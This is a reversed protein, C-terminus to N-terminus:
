YEFESAGVFERLISIGPVIDIKLPLFFTLLVRLRSVTDELSPQKGVKELLKLCSETLVPLEYLLASNFMMDAEEQFPFIYQEEGRRVSPWRNLTEEASYGRYKYDRIMRRLLRNDSTSVRHTSDINLQTIASIYIRQLQDKGLAEALVPNLGHIGELIVFDDRGLQLTQNRDEGIGAEFNFKRVPIEKGRLLSNMREALLKINVAQINEFDQHGNKDLPIDKRDHFYDDMSIQRARFGIVRLQIALRKAFTTKGSSSPGAITIIRKDPFNNVLVDAIDSIKKEHLGEAVWLLERIEGSHITENLDHITRVGLIDGWREHEEMVSFLKPQNRFSGVTGPNLLTPFRLLFGNNFKRIEFQKLRTKDSTMPEICYDWSNKYQVMPLPDDKWLQLNGSKSVSHLKKFERVVWERPRKTLRIPEPNNLISNIERTLINLEGKSFPMWENDHCFYGDGFSHEIVLMREPFIKRFAISLIFGLSAQNAALNM